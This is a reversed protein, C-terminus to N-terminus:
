VDVIGRDTFKYAGGLLVLNKGDPSVCFLPRSGKRFQHIYKQYEGDRVTDYALAVVEGIAVLTKPFDPTLVRHVEFEDTHGTFRQYLRAAQKLLHSHRKRM